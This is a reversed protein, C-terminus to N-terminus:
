KAKEARVIVATPPDGLAEVTLINIFGAQSMLNILDDSSFFRFRGEDAMELVHQVFAALERLSALLRGKQHEDIDTQQAIFQAEEMYAKSSDFNPKPSSLVIVGGPALIRYFERVVSESDYLYPLVISAGIKDFADSSCDINCDRSAYGFNLHKFALDGTHKAMQCGPRLDEPLTNDQLFRSAMSLDLVAEAEMQEFSPCLRMVEQIEASSGHLIEHLRPGYSAAIKRLTSTELGEVRRTLAIPGHFKGSLFDKLPTLRAAELDMIRYDVWVHDLQGEAQKMKQDIKEKSRQVAKPVLDCCTMLVPRSDATIEDLLALSLNGTGCGLDAVRDGPKVGLLKAQKGIFDVYDPNYLFMDYGEVGESAGFLHTNWFEVTNKIRTRKIRAWEAENQKAYRAMDPEATPRDMGFLHKAVLEYILKYSEIAEPGTKLLHGSPLEIIERPGGGPANLMQRVRERTVVFDYTGLIWSVPIQIKSMDDRAEDLFAMKRHVADRIVENPDGRRGFIYVPEIKEDDLYKQFLDVGALLFKWQDQGDPCGFPAIWMDVAPKAGDAILRRAPIAAVSFSVLVRKAPQFRRELFALGGLMDSEYTSYTWNYFYAANDDEPEPDSKSEGVMHTMDFRLVVGNLGDRKFNDVLTRSLLNFVEKRVQFPQCILVAVDVPPLVDHLDFTADVIGVVQERRTNNYRCVYVQKRASEAKVGLLDAVKKSTLGGLRKLNAWPTSRVTRNQIKSFADREITSDIFNLGIQWYGEQGAPVIRTVTAGDHRSIKQGELLEIAPFRMGVAILSNKPLLVSCGGESVDVAPIRIVGDSTHPAQFSLWTGEALMRRSCRRDNHYMREPFLIKPHDGHEVVLGEFVAHLPGDLVACYIVNNKEPIPRELDRLNLIDPTFDLRAEFWSGSTASLAVLIKVDCQAAAHLRERIWQKESIPLLNGDLVNPISNQLSVVTDDLELFSAYGRLLSRDRSQLDEFVVGIGYDDSRVVRGGVIIPNKFGNPLLIQSMFRTGVPPPHDTRIYAGSLSINMMLTNTDTPQGDLTTVIALTKRRSARRAERAHEIDNINNIINDQGIM